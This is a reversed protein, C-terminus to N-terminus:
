RIKLISERRSYKWESKTCGLQIVTDKEILELGCVGPGEKYIKKATGPFGIKMPSTAIWIAEGPKLGIITDVRTSFVDKQPEILYEPVHIRIEENRKNEVSYYVRNVSDCSHLLMFGIPFLMIKLLTKM